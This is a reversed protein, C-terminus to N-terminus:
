SRNIFNRSLLSFAATDTYRGDFYFNEHFLGEQIFGNKLLVKISADNAPNTNAAISHLKINEFGFQLVRPLVESMIGKGFHEPLIGYGIEGRHHDKELNWLSIVGIAKQSLKYAIVWTICLNEIWQKRVMQLFERVESENKAPARDLYKICDPESRLRFFLSLDREEQVDRLEFHETELSTFPFLNIDLM